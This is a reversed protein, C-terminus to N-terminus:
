IMLSNAKLAVNGIWVKTKYVPYRHTIRPLNQVLVPWFQTQNLPIGKMNYSIMIMKPMLINQFQQMRLHMLFRELVQINTVLNPLYNDVLRPKSSLLTYFCTFWSVLTCLRVWRWFFKWRVKNKSKVDTFSISARLWHLMHCYAGQFLHSVMATVYLVCNFYNRFSLTFFFFLFFSFDLKLPIQSNRHDRVM